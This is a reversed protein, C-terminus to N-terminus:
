NEICAKPRLKSNRLMTEIDWTEIFASGWTALVRALQPDTIDYLVWEWPGPWLRPVHLPIKKHNIFIYNPVLKAAASRSSEEWADIIWGVTQMGLARAHSLVLSDQSIITIQEMCPELAALIAKVVKHTGFQKLSEVKIELFAHRNPWQLLLQVAEELTPIRIQHFRNGLRNAESVDLQQIRQLPLDCLNGSEGTIRQLDNDHFLVPIGDASLQVDFEVICAGCRYAAEIGLLTNEPYRESDGRHAVLVPTKPMALKTNKVKYQSM